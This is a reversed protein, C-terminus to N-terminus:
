HRLKATMKLNPFYPLRNRAVYLVPMVTVTASSMLKNICSKCYLHGFERTQQAERCPFQCINCLLRDPPPNVFYLRIYGGYNRENVFETEYEM